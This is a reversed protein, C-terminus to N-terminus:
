MAFRRRISAPTFAFTANAATRPSRVVLWSTEAKPTWVVALRVTSSAATAAVPVTERRDGARHGLLLVGQDRFQVLLDTPKL